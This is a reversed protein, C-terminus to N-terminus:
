WDDDSYMGGGGWRGGYEDESDSYESPRTYVIGMGDDVDEPPSGGQGDWKVAGGECLAERLVKTDAERVNYCANLVVTSLPRKWTKRKALARRLGIDEREGVCEGYGRRLSHRYVGDDFAMCVRHLRLEALAPWFVRKKEKGSKPDHILYLDYYSGEPPFGLSRLSEDVAALTSEYGHFKNYAKSTIFVEQRTVIGSAFAHALASGLPAESGYLSATDFHRYGAQM